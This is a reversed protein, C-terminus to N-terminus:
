RHKLPRILFSLGLEEARFACSTCGRLHAPLSADEQNEARPAGGEWWPQLVGQARLADTEGSERRSKEECREVCFKLSLGIATLDAAYDGLQYRGRLVKVDQPPMDFISAAIEDGMSEASLAALVKVPDCCELRPEEMAGLAAQAVADPLGVLRALRYIHLREQEPQPADGLIRAALQWERSSAGGAKQAEESSICHKFRLLVSYAALVQLRLCAAIKMRAESVSSDDQPRAFSEAVELSIGLRRLVDQVARRWNYYCSKKSPHNYFAWEDDQLLRTELVLGCGTCVRDGSTEVVADHSCIMTTLLIGGYVHAQKFAEISM